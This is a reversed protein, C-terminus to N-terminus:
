LSKQSKLIEYPMEFTDVLDKFQSVSGLSNWARGPRGTERAPLGSTRLGAGRAGSEPIGSVACIRLLFRPLGLRIGIDPNKEYLPQVLRLLGPCKSPSVSYELLRLCYEACAEGLGGLLLHFSGLIRAARRRKCDTWGQFANSFIWVAILRPM